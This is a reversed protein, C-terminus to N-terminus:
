IIEHQQLYQCIIALRSQPDDLELLKQRAKLPIPLIESWRNAVWGADDLQMRDPFPSVFAAEQEARGKANIDEIVLQLMNACPQQPPTPPVVADAAIFEVQAEVHRDKGTRTQLIRFRRGGETRLMLVGLQSADCDVIHALCGVSEPEAAEGVERGSKILAVGFPSERKMCDRVMDIYRTEFVKLPLVGGPFLVANLPFLPLWNENDSM